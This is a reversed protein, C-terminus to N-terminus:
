IYCERVTGDPLKTQHFVFHATISLSATEGGCLPFSLLEFDTKFSDTSTEAQGYVSSIGFRGILVASIAVLGLQFNLHKKTGNDM